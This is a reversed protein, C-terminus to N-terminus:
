IDTRPLANANMSAILDWKYKGSFQKIKGFLFVAFSDTRAQSLIMSCWNSNFSLWPSLWGVSATCSWPFPAWRLFFGTVHVVSGSSIRLALDLFQPQLSPFSREKLIRQCTRLQLHYLTDPCVSRSLFCVLGFGYCSCPKNM